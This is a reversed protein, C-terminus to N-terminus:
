VVDPQGPLPKSWVPPVVVQQHLLTPPAMASRDTITREHLIRCIRWMYVFWVVVCGFVGSIFKVVFTIGQLPHLIGNFYVMWLDMWFLVLDETLFMVVVGAQLRRSRAKANTVYKYSTFFLPGGGMVYGLMGIIVFALYTNAFDKVDNIGSLDNRFRLWFAYNFISLICNIGHWYLCVLPFSLVKKTTM